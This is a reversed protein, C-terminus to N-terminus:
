TLALAAPAKYSFSMVIAFRQEFCPEPVDMTWNPVLFPGYCATGQSANEPPQTSFAVTTYFLQLVLFGSQSFARTVRLPLVFWSIKDPIRCYISEMHNGLTYKILEGIAIVVPIECCEELGKLAKKKM